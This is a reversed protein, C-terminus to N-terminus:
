YSLIKQMSKKIKKIYSNVENIDKNLINSIEQITHNDYYKLHFIEQQTIPWSQITEQILINDIIQSSSLTRTDQIVDGLSVSDSDSIDISANLSEVNFNVGSCYKYRAKEKDEPTLLNNEKEFKHKKDLDNDYEGLFYKVYAIHKDNYKVLRAERLLNNLKFKVNNVIYSSLKAKKGNVSIHLPNYTDYFELAYKYAEQVYAEKDENVHTNIQKSYLYFKCAIEEILKKHGDILKQKAKLRINEKPHRTALLFLITDTACNDHKEIILNASNSASVEVLTM